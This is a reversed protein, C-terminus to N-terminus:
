FSVRPLGRPQSIAVVTTKCSKTEVIFGALAVPNSRLNLDESSLQSTNEEIDCLIIDGVDKAVHDLAQFFYVVFNVGFKGVTGRGCSEVQSNSNITNVRLDTTYSRHIAVRM